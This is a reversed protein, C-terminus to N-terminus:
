GSAYNNNATFTVVSGNGSVNTITALVGQNLYLMSDTISLNNGSISISTGTVQLNGGITVNGSVNLSTLNAGIEFSTTGNSSYVKKDTLNVAFEGADIYSTNSSNTTNPSRGSITTRKFQIKNNAM